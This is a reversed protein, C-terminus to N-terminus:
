SDAQALAIDCEDHVLRRLTVPGLVRTQCALRIDSGLGKLATLRAEPENPPSLNEGGQLIIVRCTSCRAHGGCAATHPIGHKRSISLVTQGREEEQVVKEQEYVVSIM